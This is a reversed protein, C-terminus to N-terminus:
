TGAPTSSAGPSESASLVAPIPSLEWVAERTASLWSSLDEEKLKGEFLL